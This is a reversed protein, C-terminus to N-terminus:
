GGRKIRCNDPGDEVLLIANNVMRKTELNEPGARETKDCANELAMHTAAVEEQQRHWTKGGDTTHLAVGGHGVAWGM